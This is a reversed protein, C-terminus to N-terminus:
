SCNESPKKLYPSARPDSTFLECVIRTEPRGVRARAAVTTRTPGGSRNCRAGLFPLTEIVWAAM